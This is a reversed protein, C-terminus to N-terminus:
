RGQYDAKSSKRKEYIKIVITLFLIMLVAGSLSGITDIGVDTLMCARGPVFYQHIEDSVAYVASFLTSLLIYKITSAGAVSFRLGFAFAAGLSMYEIFHASKRIIVNLKQWMDKSLPDNKETVASIVSDSLQTSVPGSQSSFYFIAAMVLFAPIFYLIKKM